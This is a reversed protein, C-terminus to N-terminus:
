PKNDRHQLVVTEWISHIQTTIENETNFCIYIYLDSEMTFIILSTFHTIGTLSFANLM